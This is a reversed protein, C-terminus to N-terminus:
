KPSRIAYVLHVWGKSGYEVEQEVTMGIKEAVRRSPNNEPRVLAILRSPHINRFVWDRSAEAAETALGQGWFARKVHWGLEIERAGLVERVAPGCDGILEGTAKLEVAWLGIGDRRYRNISDKIWEEVLQRTYPVAYFRMTEPDGLVGFLAEVDENRLPRLRLRNTELISMSNMKWRSPFGCGSPLKFALLSRRVV